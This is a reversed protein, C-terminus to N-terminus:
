ILWGWGHGRRIVVKAIDLLENKREASDISLANWFREDVKDARGMRIEECITLAALWKLQQNNEAIDGKNAYAYSVTGFSADRGCGAASLMMASVQLPDCKYISHGVSGIERGTALAELATRAQELEGNALLIALGARSAFGALMGRGRGFEKDYQGVHSGIHCRLIADELIPRWIREFQRSALRRCVAHIVSVAAVLNPPVVNLAKRLDNIKEGSGLVPDSAAAFILRRLGLVFGEPLKVEKASSAFVFNSLRWIFWPVPKFRAVIRGAERWAEAEEPDTAGDTLSLVQAETERLTRELEVEFSDKEPAAEPEVVLGARSSKGDGQIVMENILTGPGSTDKKM